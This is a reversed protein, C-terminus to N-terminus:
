KSLDYTFVWQGLIRDRLTDDELPKIITTYIDEGQLAEPIERVVYSVFPTDGTGATLEMDIGTAEVAEIFATIRDMEQIIGSQLRDVTLTLTDSTQAFPATLVVEGCLREGKTVAPQRFGSYSIDREDGEIKFRPFWNITDDPPTFCLHGRAISPAVSFSEMTMTIGQDEVTQASDFRKAPIFPLSFDFRVTFPEVIQSPDPTPLTSPAGGGGGGGGSEFDSPPSFPNAPQTEGQGFDLVLSLNITEPTGEIYAADMSAVSIYLNRKGDGGGGGGGGGLFGAPPLIVGTDSDMLTMMTIRPMQLHAPYDVAYEFSIRHGDAYAWPISVQIDQPGMEVLDLTTILDAEEAGLLGADGGRIQSIQYFAYGVTSVLLVAVLAVAIRGLGRHAQFRRKHQKTEIQAKIDAWLDVDAPINHEAIENLAKQLQKDEM